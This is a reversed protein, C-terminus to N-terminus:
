EDGASLTSQVAIVAPFFIMGLCQVVVAAYAKQPSDVLGTAFCLCFCSLSGLGVIIAVKEGFRAIITPTFVIMVVIGGVGQIENNIINNHPSFELEHAVYLMYFQWMGMMVCAGFFTTVSLRRFIKTRTLVTLQKLTNCAEALEKRDSVDVASRMEPALTEPLLFVAVLVCGIGSALSISSLVVFDHQFNADLQEHSMDSPIPDPPVWLGAFLNCLLTM